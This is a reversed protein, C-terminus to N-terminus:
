RGCQQKKWQPWFAELWGMRLGFLAMLEGKRFESGLQILQGAFDLFYFKQALFGLPQIPCDSPIEKVDFADGPADRDDFGDTMDPAEQSGAAAAAIEAAVDLSSPDPGRRQTV